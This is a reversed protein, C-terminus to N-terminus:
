DRLMMRQRAQRMLDLMRRVARARDGSWQTPRLQVAGISLIRSRRGDKQPIFMEVEREAADPIRFACSGSIGLPAFKAGGLRSNLFSVHV